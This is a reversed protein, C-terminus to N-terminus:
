VHEVINNGSISKEGLKIGFKTIQRPIFNYVDLNIILRLLIDSTFFLQENWNILLLFVKQGTINEISYCNTKM